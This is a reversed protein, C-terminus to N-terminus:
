TIEGEGEFWLRIIDEGNPAHELEPFFKCRDHLECWACEEKRGTDKVIVIEPECNNCYIKDWWRMWPSEDFAGYKDLWTVLEDIDLSKFLDLRTLYSNKMENEKEMM